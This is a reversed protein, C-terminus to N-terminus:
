EVDIGLIELLDAVVAKVLASKQSDISSRAETLLAPPESQESVSVSLVYPCFAFVTEPTDPIATGNAAMNKNIITNAHLKYASEALTTDIYPLSFLSTRQIVNPKDAPLKISRIAISEDLLTVCKYTKSSESTKNENAAAGKSNATYASLVIHVVMNLERSKDKEKVSGKAGKVVLDNISFYSLGTIRDVMLNMTFSAADIGEGEPTSSAKRNVKFCGIPDVNFTINGAALTGRYFDFGTIRQEWVATYSNERTKLKNSIWTVGYNIFPQVLIGVLVPAVATKETGDPAPTYTAVHWEPAVNWPEPTITVEEQYCWNEVSATAGAYAAIECGLFIGIAIAPGIIIHNTKM